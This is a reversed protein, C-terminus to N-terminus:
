EIFVYHILIGTILSIAFVRTFTTSIPCHKPIETNELVIVKDPVKHDNDDNNKLEQQKSSDECVNDKVVESKIDNIHNVTSEMKLIINSEEQRRRLRKKTNLLEEFENEKREKEKWEAQKEQYVNERKQEEEEIRSKFFNVKMLDGVEEANDLELTLAWIVEDYLSKALDVEEQFLKENQILKRRSEQRELKRRNIVQTIHEIDSCSGNNTGDKIDNSEKSKAVRGRDCTPKVQRERKFKSVDAGACLSAIERFGYKDAVDGPSSGQCDRFTTNAGAELLMRVMQLNGFMAALHLVTWGDTWRQQNVKAGLYIAM